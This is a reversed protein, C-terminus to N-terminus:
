RISGGVTATGNNIQQPTDQNRPDDVPTVVGNIVFSPDYTGGPTDPTLNTVVVNQFTTLPGSNEGILGAETALDSALTFRPDIEAAREFMAKAKLYDGDDQLEIGQCFALFADYNETAPKKLAQRRSGKIEIGLSDLVALVMEKQLQMVKKLEGDRGYTPSYAASGADVLATNLSFNKDSPKDVSANLLTAARVIKGVRPATAPDALGQETLKLEEALFAFQEREVVQLEPISSLDYWTVAQLGTALSRTTEDVGRHTVFPLIGITNPAPATAAIETERKVADAVQLRLAESQVYLLRGRISPAAKSKGNKDLFNRYSKEAAAFDGRSEAIMGLYLTVTPDNPLSQQAASLLKEAQPIDNQHYYARGLARQVRADNPKNQLAVRLHDIALQYNQSDLAREGQRLASQSCGAVILLAAVVSLSLVAKLRNM